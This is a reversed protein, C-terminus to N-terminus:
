YSRKDGSRFYNMGYSTPLELLWVLMGKYDGLKGGGLRNRGESEDRRM